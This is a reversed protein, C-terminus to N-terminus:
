LLRASLNKRIKHRNPMMHWLSCIDAHLVSQNQARSSDNCYFRFMPHFTAGKSVKVKKM